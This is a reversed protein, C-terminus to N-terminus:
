PILTTGGDADLRYFSGDEWLLAQLGGLEGAPVDIAIVRGDHLVSLSDHETHGVVIRDVQHFELLRDIEEGTAEPYVGEMAYHYGRYWFPGLAGFLMGLEDNLAVGVTTQGLGRLALENIEDIHLLNPAVSEPAMGAHVFLIGNLRVAVPRTRLWRGLEMDPGFLDGYDIGTPGAIGDLYRQNVYRLDGRLVMLEHNGLVFHVAGGANRAERELRHILWLCETVSPGRDMVDGVIVLHGGGWSWCGSDDVVGAAHLIGLLHEYEGHVDSVALIGPVDEFECSVREPAATPIIFAGGERFSCELMTTDAASRTEQELRGDIFSFVVITSDNRWYVHPGDDLNILPSDTDEMSKLPVCPSASLSALLLVLAPIM